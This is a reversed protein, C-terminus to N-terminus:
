PAQLRSSSQNAYTGLSPGQHGGEDFRMYPRRLGIAPANQLGMRSRRTEHQHRDGRTRAGGHGCMARRSRMASSRRRFAFVIAVVLLVVSVLGVVLRRRATIGACVRRSDIVSSFKSERLRREIDENGAFIMHGHLDEVTEFVLVSYAPLGFRAQLPGLRRWIDHIVERGVGPDVTLYSLRGHLQMYRVSGYLREIEAVTLGRSDV